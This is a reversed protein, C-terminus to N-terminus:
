CCRGPISSHLSMNTSLHLVMLVYVEQIRNQFFFPTLALEIGMNM